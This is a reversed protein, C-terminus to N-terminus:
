SAMTVYGYTVLYIVLHKIPKTNSHARSRTGRMKHLLFNPEASNISPNFSSNMLWLMGIVTREAKLDFKTAFESLNPDGNGFGKAKWRLMM